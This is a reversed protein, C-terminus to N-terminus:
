SNMQNHGLVLLTVMVLICTQNGWYRNPQSFSIFIHIYLEPIPQLLYISIHIKIM